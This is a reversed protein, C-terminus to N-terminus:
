PKLARGRQPQSPPRASLQASAFVGDPTDHRGHVRCIDGMDAVERDHGVDVVALRGDGVPNELEGVRHLLAVEGLLHEVRHVDLLLPADGDLGIGDAHRIVRIVALRVLEIKDIRGTVHVEDVLDRAREGGALTRHEDHVGRLPHLGLRDGVGVQGHVGVEVDNRADVLYVQRGGMGILDLLLDLLVQGDRGVVRHADRALRALADMVQELGDDKEDRWGFPVRRGRELCEDEVRVEIVVPAHHSVHADKVTPDHLAVLERHHLGSLFEEHVAHAAFARGLHRKVHQTHTLHPKHDRTELVRLGHVHPIGEGVPVTGAVGGKGAIALGLGHDVRADEGHVVLLVLVKPIRELLQVDVIRRKDPGGLRGHRQAKAKAHAKEAEEVHLDHLLTKLTLEVEVENGGAGGHVIVHVLRVAGHCLDLARLVQGLRRADLADLVGEELGLDDYRGLERTGHQLEDDLMATHRLVHDIEGLLGDLHVEVDGQGLEDEVEEVLELTARLAICREIVLKVYIVLGVEHLEVNEESALLNVREGEDHVLVLGVVERTPEAVLEPVDDRALLELNGYLSGDAVLDDTARGHLRVALIHECFAVATVDRALALEELLLLLALLAHLGDTRDLHRLLGEERDELEIILLAMSSTPTRCESAPSPMLYQVHPASGHSPVVHTNRNWPIVDACLNQFGIAHSSAARPRDTIAHSM